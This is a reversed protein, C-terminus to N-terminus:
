GSKGRDVSPREALAIPDVPLICGNRRLATKVALLGAETIVTQWADDGIRDAFSDLIKRVTLVAKKESQSIFIVM